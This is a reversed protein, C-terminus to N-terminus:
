AQGARRERAILDLVGNAFSPSEDGGFRRAVEVAEDIVVEIPTEPEFLLEYTAVRLVNRDVRALRHLKWRESAGVVREDIQKLNGVVGVALAHAWQRARSAIQFEESIERFLAEVSDVDLRDAADAAYLVQLAIERAQRRPGPTRM